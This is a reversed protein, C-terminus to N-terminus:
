NSTFKVYWLEPVSKKFLKRNEMRKVHKMWIIHYWIMDGNINFVFIIRIMSSFFCIIFHNKSPQVCFKSATRKKYCTKFILKLKSHKGSILRKSFHARFTGRTGPWAGLTFPDIFHNNSPFFSETRFFYIMFYWIIDYWLIDYNINFVYIIRIM